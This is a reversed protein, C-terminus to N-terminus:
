NRRDIVVDDMTLCGCNTAAAIILEGAEAMERVLALGQETSVTNKAFDLSGSGSDWHVYPCTVVIKKGYDRITYETEYIGCQVDIKTTKM